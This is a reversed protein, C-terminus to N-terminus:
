LGHLESRKRPEQVEPFPLPLLEHKPLMPFSSLQGTAPDLYYVTGSEEAYAIASHRKVDLLEDLHPTGYTELALLFLRNGDQLLVHSGEYVWYARVIDHGQRYVWHLTPIAPTASEKTGEHSFDVIGLRDKQWCVVRQQHPDWELGRVGKEVLRVPPDNAFLTGREGLFLIVDEAFVKVQVFGRSGFLSRALRPDDWLVQTDPRERDIRVFKGNDTLVYLWRDFLGFGRVGNLFKPYLAHSAVDLRHLHGDQFSLVDHRLRPDWEVHLPTKVFLNTLDASIPETRRLDLWLWKQGDRTEVRFLVTPSDRVVTESLIIADALPDDAAILPRQVSDKWDYLTADAMRRGQTLIFWQSGPIPILEDFPEPWVRDPHFQTPLLIVKDLATAKEAEVPVTQIWPKYHKLSLKVTYTGPLLGRLITPTKNTYRRNGLYVSAGPPTTSLAILGTKVIGQRFAYGFAHLITLPCAILYAMVFLGFLMKRLRSM